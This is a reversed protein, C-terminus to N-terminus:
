ATCIQRIVKATTGPTSWTEGSSPIVCSVRIGHTL